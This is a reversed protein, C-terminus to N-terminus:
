NCNGWWTARQQSIRFGDERWSRKRARTVNINMLSRAPRSMPNSAQIAQSIDGDVVALADAMDSEEAWRVGITANVVTALIGLSAFGLGAGYLSRARALTDSLHSTPVFSGDLPRRAFLAFPKPLAKSYTQRLRSRAATTFAAAIHPSTTALLGRVVARLSRSLHSGCRRRPLASPVCEDVHANAIFTDVM